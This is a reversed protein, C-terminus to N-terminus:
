HAPLRLESLGKAHELPLAHLTGGDISEGIRVGAGISAAGLSLTINDFPMEEYTRPLKRGAQRTSIGKAEEELAFNLWLNGDWNTASLSARLPAYREDHITPKSSADVTHDLSIIGANKSIAFYFSGTIEKPHYGGLMDAGRVDRALPAFSSLLWGHRPMNYRYDNGFLKM